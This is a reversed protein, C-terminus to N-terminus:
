RLLVSLLSSRSISASRAPEASDALLRSGTSVEQTAPPKPTAPPWWGGAVRRNKELPRTSLSRAHGLNRERVQAISGDRFFEAPGSTCGHIAEEIKVRPAVREHTSAPNLAAFDM